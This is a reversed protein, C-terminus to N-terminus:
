EENNIKELLNDVDEPSVPEDRRDEPPTFLDENHTDDILISGDDQQM